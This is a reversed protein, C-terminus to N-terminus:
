KSVFFDRNVCAHFMLMREKMYNKRTEEFKQCRGFEYKMDEIYKNNYNGIDRLADKYKERTMEIDQEAKQVKASIKTIQEHTITPNNKAEEEQKKGNDRLANASHYAKMCM